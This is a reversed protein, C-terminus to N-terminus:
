GEVYNIMELFRKAASKASWEGIPVRPLSGNISQVLLASLKKVDRCNFRHTEPLITAPGGAQNSGLVLMGEELAESVVAGWGDAASSPFVYVDHTRMIDRVENLPVSDRFDIVENSLGLSRALRELRVREPGNGVLSLKIRNGLGDRDQRNAMAVARIIIDVNKLKLMRGVWLVKLFRKPTQLHTGSASPQGSAVFYGWLSMAPAPFGMAGFDDRAHVGIPLLMLSGAKVLARMRQVMKRYSPVLMRLRGPLCLFPKFWRESMYYTKLRKRARREFLDLDRIGCLLIDADELWIRSETNFDAIIWPECIDPWGMRIREDHLPESYIYRFSEAGILEILAKSFPLQHPSVVVTYLAIKM